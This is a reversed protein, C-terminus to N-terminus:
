HEHILQNRTDIMELWINEDEILNNIKAQKFCDKPKKCIIGLDELYVKIM